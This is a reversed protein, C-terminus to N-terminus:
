QLWIVQGAFAGPALWSLQFVARIELGGCLSIARHIALNDTVVPGTEVIPGKVTLRRIVTHNQSTVPRKQAQKSLGIHQAAKRHCQKSAAMAPPKVFIRLNFRAISASLHGPLDPIRGQTIQLQGHGRNWEVTGATKCQAESRLTQPGAIL